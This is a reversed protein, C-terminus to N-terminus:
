AQSQRSGGHGQLRARQGSAARSRPAQMFMPLRYNRWSGSMVRMGSMMLSNSVLSSRITPFVKKKKEKNKKRSARGQQETRRPVLQRAPTAGQSLRVPSCQSVAAETTAQAILRDAAGLLQQCGPAILMLVRAATREDGSATSTERETPINDRRSRRCTRCVLLEPPPRNGAGTAGLACIQAPSQRANIGAIEVASTCPTPLDCVM